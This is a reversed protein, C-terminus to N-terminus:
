RQVLGWLGALRVLLCLRFVKSNQSFVELGRMLAPSKKIQSEKRYRYNNGCDHKDREKVYIKVIRRKTDYKCHIGSLRYNIGVFRQHLLSYQM